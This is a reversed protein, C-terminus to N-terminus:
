ILNVWTILLAVRYGTPWASTFSKRPVRFDFALSSGTKVYDIKYLSMCFVCMGFVRTYTVWIGIPSSHPTGRGLSPAGPVPDSRPGDYTCARDPSLTIFRNETKSRRRQHQPQHRRRHRHARLDDHKSDRQTLKLSSEESM